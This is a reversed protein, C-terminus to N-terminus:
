NRKPNDKDSLIVNKIKKSWKIKFKPDNYYITRQLDPIYEQDVKYHVIAFDSLVLFGHAFGKPIFLQKQNKDSLIVSYNKKYTTSNVRLDIAVDQIEGYSVSVLKSQPYKAQYHMGRLVGRKSYSLNDQIFLIKKKIKKEFIKKNFKESFYGRKKDFFVPNKIVILDNITTLQIKFM